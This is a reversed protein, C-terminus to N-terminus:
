SYGMTRQREMFRELRINREKTLEKAKDFHKEIFELNGESCMEAFTNKGNQKCESIAKSINDVPTEFLMERYHEAGYSYVVEVKDDRRVSFKEKGFLLENLEKLKADYAQKVKTIAATVGTKVKQFLTQLANEKFRNNKYETFAPNIWSDSDKIQGAAEKWNEIEIIKSINEANFLNIQNQNEEFLKQTEKKAKEADVLKKRALLEKQVSSKEKEAATKEREQIEIERTNLSSEKQSVANERETVKAETRALEREKEILPAEGQRIRKEREIQKSEQEDLKERKYDLYKEERSLNAEKEIQSKRTSEIEKEKTALKEKEEKLREEQNRLIQEERHLHEERVKLDIKKDSLDKEIEELHEITYDFDDKRNELAIEKAELVEKTEKLEAELAMNDQEAKYVEKERHSHSYGKTRNIKIGMSECFDMLDARVAEEFQQQATGNGKSTFFGMENCAASMSCQLEMGKELSKGWREVMGKRWDKKKWEEENWQIGKEALEAKKAEKCKSRYLKEEKLEEPNLAHAVFIGVAHFHAPSNIRNGKRDFSYEDNHMTISTPIFNPFKKPLIKQIYLALVKRAIEDPCHSDRNGIYFQFEYFPKRDSSAKPNKHTGTREDDLIKQYYDKIRRDKRKQKENYKRIADGFVAEYAAREDGLHLLVEHERTPDIHKQNEVYDTLRLNHGFSYKPRCLATVRWGESNNPM